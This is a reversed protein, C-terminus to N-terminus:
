EEFSEGNLYFSAAESNGPQQMLSGCSGSVRGPLQCSLKALSKVKSNAFGESFKRRLVYKVPYKKEQFPSVWELIAAFIELQKSSANDECFPLTFATSPSAPQIRTTCPQHPLLEIISSFLLVKLFTSSPSNQDDSARTRTVTLTCCPTRPTSPSSISDM